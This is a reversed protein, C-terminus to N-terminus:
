FTPHHIYEDRWMCTIWRFNFRNLEDLL